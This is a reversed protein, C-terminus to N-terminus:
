RRRRELQTGLCHRQAHGLRELIHSYAHSTLVYAKRKAKPLAQLNRQSETGPSISFLTMDGAGPSLSVTDGDNSNTSLSFSPLPHFHCALVARIVCSRSQPPLVFIHKGGLLPAHPHWSADRVCTQWKSAHRSPLFTYNSSDPHMPRTGKTAAEVNIKEKVTGDLNWIWVSGDASGSYVYASNTSSPPSFHCRILTKLVSHGRFTVVSCDHPNPEYDDFDFPSVRYDFNTSWAAMDIGEFASPSVMKRLDWLKMTQDKGNSLVYRGDGKSDVYTLGETHGVFIGAEHGDAMSRRDWVRITQDDSGSYLIHPSSADGFCVANVDDRHNELKLTSKQRELDYVIVSHDSTGAVIERGDGSFRLTWIGFWSPSRLAARNRRGATSSSSFNAFNLSRPESTDSPDTSALCVIHRISSYALWRNQPSLSADTITWQGWPYDVTKYYKWDYPNSTDYM